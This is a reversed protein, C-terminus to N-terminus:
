PTPTVTVTPTPTSLDIVEIADINVSGGSIHTITVSHSSLVLVPSEWESIGTTPESQELTFDANDLRIAVTGLSPGAQYVIHIKQGVFSIQVSDGITSSIHLTNKYTGTVGSQAIWNGTYNLIFDVDDYTANLVLATPSASASTNTARPQVIPTSIAATSTLTPPLLIATATPTDSALGTVLPAETPLAVGPETGILQYKVPTATETSQVDGRSAGLRAAFLVLCIGIVSAFGIFIPIFMSRDVPPKNDM